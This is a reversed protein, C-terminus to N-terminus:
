RAIATGVVDYDAAQTVELEVIEGPQASGENIYTVGDIEPSQGAHRGVLLHETEASVGEVLVELRKGILMRNQERSIRRQLAMIERRRRRAMQAPVQGEMAAAPTGEEPSYEFCGLREFRQEQVFAKLLEFDEETEGPLGAILSTRLVLGPIRQRLRALLRLIFDPGRGRRMSRLLKESIHQIPLDLYKVIKEENAIVEILEDDLQGPYAYHLRLWRAGKVACLARLLQHLRPRGPLDCGYATLDQAILNIEVVGQRALQRVEAVIDEIPRSRQRGRLAPIVCFACAHDCGESVKVFSTYWPMSNIRPTRADHIYEPDPILAKPLAEAALLDAVQAYAGTGVFHDVEPLERELDELYRQALCGAVILTRCRGNKKQEAMEVIAEVSEEKADRVFACTNVVIVEAKEPQEVLVYGKRALTGLLVESDVRNKACGLTLIYLPKGV